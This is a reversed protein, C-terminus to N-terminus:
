TAPLPCIAMGACGSRDREGHIDVGDTMGWDKEGTESSTRRPRAGQVPFGAITVELAEEVQQAGRKRVAMQGERLCASQDATRLEVQCRLAAVLHETIVCSATWTEPATLALDLLELGAQKVPLRTVERGPSKEGLEKYLALM